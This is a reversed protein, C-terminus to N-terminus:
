LCELGTANKDIFRKQNLIMETVLVRFMTLKTELWSFQSVQNTIEVNQMIVFVLSPASIAL